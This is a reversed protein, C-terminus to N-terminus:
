YASSHLLGGQAAKEKFKRKRTESQKRKSEESRVHGIKSISIKARAEPTHLRGKHAISLKARTEDSAKKGTNAASLKDRTAQPMNQKAAKINACGELSRKKGVMAAAMRARTKADRKLGLRAARQKERTEPPQNKSITSIKARTEPTHTTGIKAARLREKTEDSHAGGSDGGGRLNYGNPSMTNWERIYQIELRNAEDITLEEALVEHKFNEWGYKDIANKFARCGTKHQHGLNRSHLNNTQGIYSKGSPSTHMYILFKM